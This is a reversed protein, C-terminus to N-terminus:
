LANIATVEMEKKWPSSVATLVGTVSVKKGAFAECTKKLDESAKITFTVAGKSEPNEVLYFNETGKKLTGTITITQGLNEESLFSHNGAPLKEGLSDITKPSEAVVPENKIEKKKSSACSTFVLSVAFVCIILTIKKM